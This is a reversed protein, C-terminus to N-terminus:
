QGSTTFLADLQKDAVWAMSYVTDVYKEGLDPSIAVVRSRPPLSGSIRDVAALVTGTSGGALLGYDRTLRHCMAVTETEPILVKEFSGDDVFIDPRRAAGLGPIHRTSPPGGFTVSGVSDVGVIRTRPSHRSFYDVCGMLTGTTGAGVFLVDVHGFEDHIARATRSSHAEVNAANAHQNLWVLEPEVAIRSRVYDFRAQLFGQSSNEGTVEVVEAGLSSMMRVAQRSTNPDTVLTLSYKRAACIVALAVGLNGSTSEILRTGPRLAGTAEVSDILAVATKLKISGAPNLGELKVYVDADQVFGGLELFVNDVVVDYVHRFIM